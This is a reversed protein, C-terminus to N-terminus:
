ESLTKVPRGLVAELVRKGLIFYTNETACKDYPLYRQGIEIIRERNFWFVSNLKCMGEIEAHGELALEVVAPRGVSQTLKVEIANTVCQGNIEIVTESTDRACKMKFPINSM